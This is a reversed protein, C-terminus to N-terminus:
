DLPLMKIGDIIRKAVEYTKTEPELMSLIKDENRVLWRLIKVTHRGTAFTLVAKAGFRLGARILNVVSGNFYKSDTGTEKAAEITEKVNESAVGDTIADDVIDDVVVVNVTVSAPTQASRDKAALFPDTHIYDRAADITNSLAEREDVSLPDGELDPDRKREDDFKLANEMAKVRPMLLGDRVKAPSPGMAELLRAALEALKNPKNPANPGDSPQEALMEAIRRMAEAFRLVESHLDVATEDATIEDPKRFTDAVLKTGDDIFRAAAGDQEPVEEPKPTPRYKAELKALIDNVHAAGLEWDEDKPVLVRDLELQEIPARGAPGKLRDEYWDIWVQWDQDLDLLLARLRKWSRVIGEPLEDDWLRSTGLTLTRDDQELLATDVSIQRWITSASDASLTASLAASDAASFAASLAASNASFAASKAASFAASLAASKAASFASDRASRAASDSSFAASDASRAASRTEAEHSPWTGALWSAAIARFCPLLLAEARKARQERTRAAHIWDATLPLVRLASRSALLVAVSKPQDDLWARFSKQDTINAL